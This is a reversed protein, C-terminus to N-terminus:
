KSLPFLIIPKGTDVSTFHNDPLTDKDLAVLEFSSICAANLIERRGEQANMNSLQDNEPNLLVKANVGTSTNSNSHMNDDKKVAFHDKYCLGVIIITFVFIIILLGGVTYCM